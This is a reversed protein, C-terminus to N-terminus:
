CGSLHCGVVEEKAAGRGDVFDQIQQAVEVPVDFEYGIDVAGVLGITDQANNGKHLDKEGLGSGGEFRQRVSMEDGAPGILWSSLDSFEEVLVVEAGKGDDVFMLPKDTDHMSLLHDGRQSRFM